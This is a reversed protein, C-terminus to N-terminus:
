TADGENEDKGYLEDYIKMAIHVGTLTIAFGFKSDNENMEGAFERTVKLAVDMFDNKTPKEM